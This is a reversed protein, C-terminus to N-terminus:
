DMYLIGLTLKKILIHEPTKKEEDEWWCLLTFSAVNSDLTGAMSASPFGAGIPERACLLNHSIECDAIRPYCDRM